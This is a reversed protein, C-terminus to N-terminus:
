YVSVHIHDLHRLTPDSTNGSPHTYPEWGDEPQWIRDRYILYDIALQRHNAALWRVLQRGQQVRSPDTYPLIMVDIAHGDYHDSTAIHGSTCGGPCYGGIDHEGFRREILQMVRRTRPTLGDPGMQEPAWEGSATRGAVQAGIGPCTFGGDTINSVLSRALDAWQQYADPFASRQVRQAADTLELSQWNELQRLHEYFQRAAYHPDTVQEPTGWGMSPRQQFLGLSDRDGYQVNRLQSEQMATAIAVTWGQPPIGMTKGVGAIIEANHHQEGSLDTDAGTSSTLVQCPGTTMQQPLMGGIAAVFLLITLGCAVFGGALVLCGCGAARGGNM